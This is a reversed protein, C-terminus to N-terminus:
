RKKEKRLYDLRRTAHLLLKASVTSCANDILKGNEISSRFARCESSRRIPLGDGYPSDIAGQVSAIANRFRSALSNQLDGASGICALDPSGRAKNGAFV